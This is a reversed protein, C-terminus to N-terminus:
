HLMADGSRLIPVACYESGSYKMEWHDYLLGTPSKRKEKILELERSIAEEILLKM